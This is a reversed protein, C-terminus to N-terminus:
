VTFWSRDFYPPKDGTSVCASKSPGEEVDSIIENLGLAYPSYKIRSVYGDFGGNMNCWFNGTNQKPLSTLEKRDKLYGNIYIDMNKNNIVLTLHLWKRVPIEPIDLYEDIQELTNMHVRLTNGRLFVAPCMLPYGDVNGKHFVSQKEQKSDINEIYMWLSYSFQIGEQGDSRNIPIYLGSLPDQTIVYAETAKKVGDLLMVSMNNNFYKNILHKGLIYLAIFIISLIVIYLIVYLIKKSFITDTAKEKINNISPLISNEGNVKKINNATIQMNEKNNGKNNNGKNNNGKNNVGKNNRKNNGNKTTLTTSPTTSTATPSISISPILTKTPTSTTITSTGPTVSASKNPTSTKYTGVYSSPTNKKNNQIIYRYKYDSNKQRKNNRDKMFINKNSTTTKSTNVPKTSSNNTSTTKNTNISKTLNGNLNRTGSNSNRKKKINNEFIGSFVSLNNKEITPTRNTNSM